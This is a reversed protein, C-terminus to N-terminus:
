NGYPYVELLSEQLKEDVHEPAAATPQGPCPALLRGEWELITM